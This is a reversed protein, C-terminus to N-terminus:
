KTTAYYPNQKLNENTEIDGIPLPLYWAWSNQLVSQLQMSSIQTNYECITSIVRQKYGFVSQGSVTKYSGYAIGESDEVTQTPAFESDYRAMRLLDYWRKAEGVFEMERQDIVENLLTLEDLADIENEATSSSLDLYDTLGARQRVKNILEIAARWSSQGKMILAEAKMLYVDAM